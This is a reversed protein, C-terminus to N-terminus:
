KGAAEATVQVADRVGTDQADLSAELTATCIDGEGVLSDPAMTISVVESEGPALRRTTYGARMQRTVDASGSQYTVTWGPADAGTARVLFSRATQGANKVLVRHIAKASPSAMQTVVQEGSPAAQFIGEGALGSSQAM